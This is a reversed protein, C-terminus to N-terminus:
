HSFPQVLIVEGQRASSPWTRVTSQYVHAHGREVRNIKQLQKEKVCIFINVNNSVYDTDTAFSLEDSWSMRPPPLQLSYPATILM